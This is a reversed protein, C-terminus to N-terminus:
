LSEAFDPISINMDNPGNYFISGAFRDRQYIIQSKSVKKEKSPTEDYITNGNQVIKFGYLTDANREYENRYSNGNKRKDKEPMDRFYLKSQNTYYPNYFAASPMNPYNQNYFIQASNEIVYPGKKVLRYTSCGYINNVDLLPVALKNQLINKGNNATKLKSPNLAAKKFPPKTSKPLQANKMYHLNTQFHM